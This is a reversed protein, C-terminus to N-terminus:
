DGCRGLSLTGRYPRASAVPMKQRYGLLTSSSLAFAFSSSFLLHGDTSSPRHPKGTM